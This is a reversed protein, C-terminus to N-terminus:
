SQQGSAPISNTVKKRITCDIFFQGQKFEGFTSSEIEFWTLPSQPEEEAAPELDSAVSPEYEIPRQETM